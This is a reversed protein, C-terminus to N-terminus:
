KLSKRLAIEASRALRDLIAVYRELAYRPVTGRGSNPNGRVTPDPDCLQRFLAVLETKFPGRISDVLSEVVGDFSDRLFPLVEAFSGEWHRYDLQPDLRAFLAATTSARTFFFLALSGLHYM